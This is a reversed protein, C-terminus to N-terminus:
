RAGAARRHSIDDPHAHPTGPVWEFMRTIGKIPNKMGRTLDGGVVSAAAGAMAGLVGADGASWSTKNYIVQPPGLGRVCVSYRSLTLAARGFAGIM